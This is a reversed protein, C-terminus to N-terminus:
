AAKRSRAGNRLARLVRQEDARLRSTSRPARKPLPRDWAPKLSGDLYMEIIEPHVYSKRAINATNGLGKGVVEMARNVNRKGQRESRPPEMAALTSAALVTGAWTRFHKATFDTGTIERLYDNVDSSGIPRREGEEDVYQFLDYGPLDRCRRVIRALRQDRVDFVHVKGGKGTFEFRVTSGKVEVHRNRLTTLGFSDNDRAYEANGVRAFATDMLRVVTALVKERPLGDLALDRQVRRRIDTLSKGFDVLRDFKTEDRVTRWRDHYRYQKRGRADRGTAQLHGNSAPCIWVDTWAPPIALARIRALTEPDEVRNGEADLYVFGRGARRRRLGPIGDAMYRLGPVSTPGPISGNAQKSM